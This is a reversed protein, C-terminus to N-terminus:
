RGESAASAVLQGRAALPPDGAVAEDRTQLTGSALLLATTLAGGAAATAVTGM